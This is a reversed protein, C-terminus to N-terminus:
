LYPVKPAAIHPNARRVNDQGQARYDFTCGHDGSFKHQACYHNGCRCAFVGALPLKKACHNCRHRDDCPANIPPSSSSSSSSSPPSPSALMPSLLPSQLCSSSTTTITSCALSKFATLSSKGAPSVARRNTRSPRSLILSTSTTVPKLASLTTTATSAPASASSLYPTPFAMVTTTANPAAAASAAPQPASTTISTSSTTLSSSPALGARQQRKLEMQEKLRDMKTKLAANDVLSAGGPSSPTAPASTASSSAANLMPLGPSLIPLAFPAPSAPTSNSSSSTIGDMPAAAATASASNAMAATAAAAAFKPSPEVTMVLQDGDIHAKFTFAQNAPLLPKIADIVATAFDAVPKPAASMPQAGSSGHSHSHGHGHGHHLRYSTTHPHQHSHHHQHHHQQQPQQQPQPHQQQHPLSSSPAAAAAAAAATPEAPRVTRVAMPGSRMSLVLHLTAGDAVGLEDLTLDVKSLVHDRYLLSFTEPLDLHNALAHGLNRVTANSPVTVDFTNGTVTDVHLRLVRVPQQPQKHQQLVSSSGGPMNHTVPFHTNPPFVQPLVFRFLLFFSIHVGTLSPFRACVCNTLLPLCHARILYFLLCAVLSPFFFSWM